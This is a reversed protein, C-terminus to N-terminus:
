GRTLDPSGRFKLMYILPPFSVLLSERLLPSRFPFLGASLGTTMRRVPSAAHIHSLMAVYRPVCTGRVPVEEMAPALGRATDQDHRM